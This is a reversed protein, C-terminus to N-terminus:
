LKDHSALLAQLPRLAHPGATSAFTGTGM